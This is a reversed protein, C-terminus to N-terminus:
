IIRITVMEDAFMDATWDDFYLLIKSRGIGSNTEKCLDVFKNFQLKASSHGKVTNPQKGGVGLVGRPVSTM